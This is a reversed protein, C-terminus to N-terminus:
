LSVRDDFAGTSVLLVKCTNSTGSKAKEKSQGDSAKAFAPVADLHILGLLIVDKKSM